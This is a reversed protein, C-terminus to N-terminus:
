GKINRAKSSWRNSREPANKLEAPDYVKVRISAHPCVLVCKNCQICIEPEWVPIELAINRKEWQASGM